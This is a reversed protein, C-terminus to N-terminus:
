QRRVSGSMRFVLTVAVAVLLVQTSLSEIVSADVLVPADVEVPDPVKVEVPDPVEVEVPDPVATEVDVATVVIESRVSGVNPMSLLSTESALRSAPADDVLVAANVGVPMPVPVSVEGTVEVPVPVPM